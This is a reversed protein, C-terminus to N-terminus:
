KYFHLHMASPPATLYHPFYTEAFFKLDKLARKQRKEKQKATTTGFPTITRAILARIDDYGHALKTNSKYGAM